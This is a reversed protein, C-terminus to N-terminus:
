EDDKATVSELNHQESMIISTLVDGLHNTFEQSGVLDKYPRGATDYLTYQFALGMVGNDLAQPKVWGYYYVIGAYPEVLLKVASVPEDLTIDVFTYDTNEQPLKKPSTTTGWFRESLWKM